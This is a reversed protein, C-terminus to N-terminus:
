LPVAPDAAVVGAQSLRQMVAKQQEVLQEIQAAHQEYRADHREVVEQTEQRLQKNEHRLQRLPFPTLLSPANMNLPM